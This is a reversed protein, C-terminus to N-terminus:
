WSASFSPQLTDQLYTSNKVARLSSCLLFISPNTPFDDTATGIDLWRVTISPPFVHKTQWSLYRGAAAIELYWTLCFNGSPRYVVVSFPTYDICINARKNFDNGRWCGLSLTIEVSASCARYWLISSRTPGFVCVLCSLFFYSYDFTSKLGGSLPFQLLSKNM